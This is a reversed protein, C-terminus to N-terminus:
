IGLDRIKITTTSQNVLTLRIKIINQCTLYKPTKVTKVNNYKSPKLHKANLHKANQGNWVKQTNITEVNKGKSWKYM